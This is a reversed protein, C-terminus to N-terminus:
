VLPPCTRLDQPPSAGWKQTPEAPRKDETCPAAPRGPPNHMPCVCTLSHLHHTLLFFSFQSRPTAARGSKCWTPPPIKSHKNISLPPTARLNYNNIKYAKFYICLRVPQCFTILRVRLITTSHESTTRPTGLEFGGGLFSSISSGAAAELACLSVIARPMGSPFVHLM